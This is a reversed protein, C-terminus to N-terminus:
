IFGTDRCTSIAIGQASIILSIVYLVSFYANGSSLVPFINIRISSFGEFFSCRRKLSLPTPKGSEISIFFTSLKPKLNTRTRVWCNFPFSSSSRSAPVEKEKWKGIVLGHSRKEIIWCFWGFGGADENDLILRKNCFAKFVLQDVQPILDASGSGVSYVEQLSM